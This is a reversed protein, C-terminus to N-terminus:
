AYQTMDITGVLYGARSKLRFSGTEPEEIQGSSALWELTQLVQHKQFEDKIGIYKSIQKYNYIKKPSNSFIAMISGAMKEKNFGKEAKSKRKHAM